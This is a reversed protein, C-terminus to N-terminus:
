RCVKNRKDKFPIPPMGYSCESGEPSEDCRGSTLRWTGARAEFDLWVNGDSTFNYRFGGSAREAASIPSPQFTEADWEGYGEPDAESQERLTYLECTTFIELAQDCGQGGFKPGRLKSCRNVVAHRFPTWAPSGCTAKGAKPPTRPGSARKGVVEVESLALDKWKRGEFANLVVLRLSRTRAPPSISVDSFGRGQKRFDIKRSSGDDFLAVLVAARANLCFLDGLRDKRQFGNAIRLKSVVVDHGFVFEVWQGAGRLKAAKPQWSTDLKGDVLNGPGFTYSKWNKLHSSAHVREPKLPGDAWASAPVGFGLALAALAGTLQNFVQVM